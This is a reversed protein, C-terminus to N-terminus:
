DNRGEGSEAAADWRTLVEILLREPVGGPTLMKRLWAAMEAAAELKKVLKPWARWVMEGKGCRWCIVEREKFEPNGCNTCVYLGRQVRTGALQDAM